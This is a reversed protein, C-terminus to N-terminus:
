SARAAVEELEYEPLFAPMSRKWLGHLSCWARVTVRDADIAFEAVPPQGPRLYRRQVLDESAVEIWEIRHRESMAHEITGVYVRIGGDIRTVIPAHKERGFDNTRARQGEMPRGCCTLEEGVMQMVEVVSQCIPCVFIDGQQNMNM